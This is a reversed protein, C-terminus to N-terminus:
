IEMLVGLDMEIISVEFSPGELVWAKVVNEDDRITADVACASLVAAGAPSEAADDAGAPKKEEGPFTAPVNTARAMTRVAATAAAKM